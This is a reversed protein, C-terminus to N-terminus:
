ACRHGTQRHPGGYVSLLVPYKRKPDFARPRTIAVHHDRGGVQVIELKTTPVLKPVEAVSPLEHGNATVSRGGASHSQTVVIVGHDVGAHSVGAGDTLRSPAGGNLPVIWIDSRTAEASAEVIAAGDQVGLVDGLGFEPTTLAKDLSGDSNRLELTWAGRSETAWLFKSADPLWLPAGLAEGVGRERAGQEGNLNIWADDHETLLTQKALPLIVALDTQERSLM